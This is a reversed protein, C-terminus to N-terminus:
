LGDTLFPRYLDCVVASQKHALRLELMPCVGELLIRGMISFGFREIMIILFISGVYLFTLRDTRWAWSDASDGRSSPGMDMRLCCCGVWFRLRARVVNGCMVVLPLNRACPSKCCLVRWCSCAEAIM